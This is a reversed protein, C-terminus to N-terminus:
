FIPEVALLIIAATISFYISKEMVQRTYLKLLKGTQWVGCQSLCKQQRHPAVQIFEQILDQNPTKFLYKEELLM